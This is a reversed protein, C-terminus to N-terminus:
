NNGNAVVKEVKDLIEKQADLLKDQSGNLTIKVKEQETIIDRNQQIILKQNAQSVAVNVMLIVQGVLVPIAVAIAAIVASWDNSM